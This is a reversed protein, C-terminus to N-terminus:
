LRARALPKGPHVGYGEPACVQLAISEAPRGAVRRANRACLGASRSAFAPGARTVNLRLRSKAHEYLWRDLPAVRRVMAECEAQMQGPCRKGLRKGARREICHTLLKELELRKAANDLDVRESLTGVCDSNVPHHQIHRLGLTDATLLLLPTLSRM